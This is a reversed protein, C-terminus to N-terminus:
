NENPKEGKLQKIIESAIQLGINKHEEQSQEPVPSYLHNEKKSLWLFQFEEPKLDQKKIWDFESQTFFVVDGSAPKNFQSIAFKLGLKSTYVKEKIVSKNM